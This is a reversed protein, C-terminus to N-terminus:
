WGVAFVTFYGYFVLKYIIQQDEQNIAYKFVEPQNTHRDVTEMKAIAMRLNGHQSQSLDKITQESEMSIPYIVWDNPYTSGFDRFYLAYAISQIVSNFRDLDVSFIGTKENGVRFTRMTGSVLKALGPSKTYSRIVKDTLLSGVDNVQISTAIINRVYEVDKALHNNHKQCSPVTVLNDRYGEPFFSYPPVHEKTIGADDCTYCKEPTKKKRKAM